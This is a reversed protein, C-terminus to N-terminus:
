PCGIIGDKVLIPTKNDFYLIYRPIAVLEFWSDRWTEGKHPIKILTHTSYKGGKLSVRLYEPKNINDDYYKRPSCVKTWIIDFSHEPCDKKLKEIERVWNYRKVGGM